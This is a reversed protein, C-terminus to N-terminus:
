PALPAIERAIAAVMDATGAQANVLVTVIRSGFRVVGMHVNAGSLVVGEDGVDLPRQAVDQGKAIALNTDVVYDYAEAGVRGALDGEARLAAVTAEAPTEGPVTYSCQPTPSQGPESTVDNRGVAAGVRAASVLTCIQESTLDAPPGANTGSGDTDGATGGTDGTDGSDGATGTSGGETGGTTDGATGQDATTGDTAAGGSGGDTSSDDVSARDPGDDSGCGAAV